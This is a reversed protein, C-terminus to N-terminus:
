FNPKGGGDPLRPDEKVVSRPDIKHSVIHGFGEGVRIPPGPEEIPKCPPEKPLSYDRAM